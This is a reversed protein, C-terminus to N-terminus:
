EILGPMSVPYCLSRSNVPCGCHLYNSELAKRDRLSAVVLKVPGGCQHFSREPNKRARFRHLRSIPGGAIHAGWAGRSIPGGPGLDSTIHDGWLGGIALPRPSGQAPYPEGSSVSRNTFRSIQPSPLYAMPTIFAFACSSHFSSEQYRKANFSAQVLKVPQRRHNYSCQGIQWASLCAQVLKVPCGCHLFNSELAKRDRSCAVVLKVPGRDVTTFVGKEIKGPM